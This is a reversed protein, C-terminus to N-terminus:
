KRAAKQRDNIDGYKPPRQGIVCDKHGASKLKEWAKRADSESEFGFALRERKGKGREWHNWWAAKATRTTRRTADGGIGRYLQARHL